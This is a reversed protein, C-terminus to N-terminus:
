IQGTLVAFLNDQEFEEVLNEEGAEKISFLANPPNPTNKGDDAQGHIAFIHPDKAAM